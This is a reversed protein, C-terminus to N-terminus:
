VGRRAPRDARLDETDFPVDVAITKGPRVTVDVDRALGGPAHRVRLRHAGAPVRDIRFAGSANTMAFHPHDFVFIWAAMWHHIDCNIEVTM